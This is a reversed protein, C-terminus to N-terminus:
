SQLFIELSIKLSIKKMMLLKLLTPPHDMNDLDEEDTGEEGPDGEEGDGDQHSEEEAAFVAAAFSSPICGVCLAFCPHIRSGKTFM